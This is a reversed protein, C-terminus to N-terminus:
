KGHCFECNGTVVGGDTSEVLRVTKSGPFYCIYRLKQSPKVKTNKSFLRKM